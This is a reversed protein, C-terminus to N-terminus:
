PQFHHTIVVSFLEKQYDGYDLSQVDLAAEIATNRIYEYLSHADVEEDIPTETKIALSGSYVVRAPLCGNFMVTYSIIRGHVKKMEGQQTMAM